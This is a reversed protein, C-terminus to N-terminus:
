QVLEKYSAMTKEKSSNCRYGMNGNVLACRTPAGIGASIAVDGCGTM